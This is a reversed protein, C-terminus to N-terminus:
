RVRGAPVHEVPDHSPRTPNESATQYVIILAFYNEKM